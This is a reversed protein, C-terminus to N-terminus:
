QELFGEQHIQMPQSSMVEACSRVFKSYTSEDCSRQLYSSLKNAASSLDNFVSELPVGRGSEEAAMDESSLIYAMMRAYAYINNENVM